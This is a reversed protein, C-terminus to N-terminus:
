EVEDWLATPLKLGKYEAEGIPGDPKYGLFTVVAQLQRTHQVVSYANSELITQVTQPGYFTPVPRSYDGDAKAWAIARAKFAEGRARIDEYTTGPKLPDENIPQDGATSYTRIDTADLDPREAVAVFRTLHAVVHNVLGLYSRESRGPLGDDYRTAPLQRGFRLAADVVRLTRELLQEPAPAESTDHDLGLVDDVQKLDLGFAFKDGRTIVPIGKIGLATLEAMRAPEKMLDIAEFAFGRKSVYEKLRICNSCGPKWYVKIDSTQVQTAMRDEMDGALSM